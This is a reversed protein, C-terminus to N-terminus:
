HMYGGYRRSYLGYWIDVYPLANHHWPISEGRGRGSQPRGRSADSAERGHGRGIVRGSGRTGGFGRGYWTDWDAKLFESWKLKDEDSEGSGCALHTHRMFGCAGCFKPLKEYM